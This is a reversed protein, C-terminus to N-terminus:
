SAASNVSDFVQQAITDPNDSSTSDMFRCESLGRFWTGQRKSFQRTRTKVQEVTDDLTAQGDLFDIIERYGVAQAATRSLQQYKEALREVEQVFGNAFM